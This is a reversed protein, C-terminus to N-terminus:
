RSPAGPTSRGTSVEAADLHQRLAHTFAEPADLNSVHAAGDLVVLRSGPIADHLQRAQDPPTAVDLEGGVVLTPTTIRGVDETLDADGLAACCSAYGDDDAATFAAQAEAFTVPDSRAFGPAFFRALVDDRIGELGHARVADIRARWGEASGVRAATNAVTLSRLRDGHLVAVWLAVLGGMSLGALHFTGLDLADAGDLVDQGLQDVTYPGPPAPARGHGRADVRITRYPGALAEVQPRWMTADSGLSHLLVVPPADDPGDITWSTRM